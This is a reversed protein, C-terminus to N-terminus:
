LSVADVAAWMSAPGKAGRLAQYAPNFRLAVKAM